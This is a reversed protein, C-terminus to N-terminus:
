SPPRDNRKVFFIVLTIVVAFIAMFISALHFLLNMTEYISM